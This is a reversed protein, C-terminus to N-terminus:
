LSTDDTVRVVAAQADLTNIIFKHWSILQLQNGTRPGAEAAKQRRRQSGVEVVLCLISYAFPELVLVDYEAVSLSSPHVSAVHVVHQIGHFGGYMPCSVADANQQM